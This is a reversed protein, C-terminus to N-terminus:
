FFAKLLMWLSNSAFVGSFFPYLEEKNKFAWASLGGVILVLSYNTPMLLGGLMLAPNVKIASVLAGTILGILMAVINFNAINIILARSLAKQVPLSHEPGIGFKSILLWFVLGISLSSVILGLWQYYLTEKKEINALQALKRGFLADCAVGGAVEVFVSVITVQVPGYGFLILGPVMVFTAFRGLPALGIKGAIESLQYACVFTFILLYFQSFISFNFYNLLILNSILVAMIQLIPIESFWNVFNVNNKKNLQNFSKKISKLFRPFGLFGLITGYLVIGTSFAISFDNFSIKSGFNLYISYFPQLLFYKVILGVALPMAIVHGTIFGIALLMPLTDLDICIYPTNLKISFCFFERKKLITLCSPLVKTFSRIYLFLQTLIFGIALQLSKLFQNQVAIMKYVLSGIPFEFKKYNILNDEFLHAMLLGLSGAAFALVTCISAFYVPSALFSNFLNKDIFYLMPFSFGFGTALIGGIGGSATVLSLTKTESKISIVKSYINLIIMAILVLTTEIWPGIPVAMSIFSMVSTSFLSLSIALFFRLFNM